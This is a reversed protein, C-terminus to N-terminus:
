PPACMAPWASASTSATSRTTSSACTWRRSRWPTPCPGDVEVHADINLRVRKCTAYVDPVPPLPRLAPRDITEFATRRSGPLKKFPRQNLRELLAAIATNLANLSFCTQHRLAALIGREVLQM